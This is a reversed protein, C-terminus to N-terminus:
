YIKFLNFITIANKIEILYIYPTKPLLMNTIYNVLKENAM